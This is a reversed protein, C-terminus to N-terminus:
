AVLRCLELVTKADFFLGVGFGYLIICCYKNSELQNHPSLACKKVYCYV